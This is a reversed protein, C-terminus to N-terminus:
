PNELVATVVVNDDYSRITRNFGGGCTVLRLVPQGDSAFISDLDLGGKPVREANAVVFTMATGDNFSVRILDGPALKDLHFFVGPGEGFMDVHAALVSSGHEGPASGFRYWGVEDVNEPVEMQGTDPMVGLPVVPADVSIVMIEVKTPMPAVVTVEDDLRVSAWSVTSTTQQHEDTITPAVVQSPAVDASTETPAQTPMPPATPGVGGNARTCVAISIALLLVSTHRIM